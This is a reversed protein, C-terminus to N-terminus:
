KKCLADVGKRVLEGGCRCRYRSTGTVLPSRRQRPFMAGCRSCVVLYRVPREEDAPPSLGLQAPFLVRSIGYDFAQNMRAAYGKWRSSHNQCGPCTHLVEHALVEQVAKRGGELVFSSVEIHFVGDKMRCCGLRKKARGNIRVRGEIQRSVPLGLSHAQKWVERLWRDLTKQEIAAIELSEGMNEVDNHQRERRQAPVRGEAYGAPALAPMETRIRVTGGIGAKM